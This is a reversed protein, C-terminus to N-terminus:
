DVFFQYIIVGCLRSYELPLMKTVHPNYVYMEVCNGGSETIHTM